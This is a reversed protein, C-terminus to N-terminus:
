LRFFVVATGNMGSLEISGAKTIFQRQKIGRHRMRQGCSCLRYDRRSTREDIEHQIAQQQIQCTMNRMKEVALKEADALLNSPASDQLKEHMQLCIAEFDKVITSIWIPKSDHKM